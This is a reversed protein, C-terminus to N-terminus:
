ECFIRGTEREREKYTNKHTENWVEAFGELIHSAVAQATPMQKKQHELYEVFAKTAAEAARRPKIGWSCGDAVCVVMRNEYLKMRFFDCIPDGM